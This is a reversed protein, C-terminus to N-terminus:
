LGVRRRQLHSVQRDLYGATVAEIEETALARGVPRAGAATTGERGLWWWQRFGEPDRGRGSARWRRLAGKGFPGFERRDWDAEAEVQKRPGGRLPRTPLQDPLAAVLSTEGRGFRM